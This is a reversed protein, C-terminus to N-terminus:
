RWTGLDPLPQDSHLGEGGTRGLLFGLLSPPPGSVEPGGPEIVWRGEEGSGVLVLGPKDGRSSFDATVDSLMQEVFDEPLHALTFSLDLDVHHIEVESRRFAPISSAPVATTGVSVEVQWQDDSLEALAALMREHGAQVDTLLDDAPRGAGAEIDADRKDRSEYMPTEVGTRAWTALNVMADSNRALHSLVHGRTWGPLLSPARAADDDLDVLSRFLSATSAQLAEVLTTGRSGDAADM